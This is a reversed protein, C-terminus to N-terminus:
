KPVHVSGDYNVCCYLFEFALLMSISVLVDKSFVM